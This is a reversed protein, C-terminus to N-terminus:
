SYRWNTLKNPNPDNNFPIAHGISSYFSIYLAEAHAAISVSSMLNHPYQRTSTRAMSLKSRGECDEHGSPLAWIWWFAEPSDTAGLSGSWILIHWLFHVSEKGWYGPSITFMQENIRYLYQVTIFRVVISASCSNYAKACSSLTMIHEQNLCHYRGSCLTIM